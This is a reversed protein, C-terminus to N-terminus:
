HSEDQDGGKDDLIVTYGDWQRYDYRSYNMHAHAFSFEDSYIGDMDAKEFAEDIRHALEARYKSDATPAVYVIEWGHTVADRLWARSYFADTFPQGKADIIEEGHFPFLELRPAYAVEMSPHMMAWVKLGPSAKRMKAVTARLNNWIPERHKYSYFETLEAGPIPKDGSATL